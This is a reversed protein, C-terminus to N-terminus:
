VGVKGRQYLPPHIGTKETCEAAQLGCVKWGLPLRANVPHGCHPLLFAKMWLRRMIQACMKERPPRLHFFTHCPKSCHCEAHRNGRGCHSRIGNFDANGARVRAVQSGVANGAQIGGLNNNGFNVGVAAHKATLKFQNGLIVLALGFQGGVRGGLQNGVLNAHDHAM